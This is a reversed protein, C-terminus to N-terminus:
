FIACASPPTRRLKEKTISHDALSDSGGDSNLVIRYPHRFLVVITRLGVGNSIRRAARAGLPSAEARLSDKPLTMESYYHVREPGFVRDWAALPSMTEFPM